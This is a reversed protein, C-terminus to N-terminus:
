YQIRQVSWPEVKWAGAARILGKLIGVLAGPGRGALHEVTVLSKSRMTMQSWGDRM